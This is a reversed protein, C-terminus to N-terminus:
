KAALQKELISILQEIQKMSMAPVLNAWAKKIEDPTGLRYLLMALKEIYPKLEETTQKQLM